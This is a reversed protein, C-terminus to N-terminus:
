VISQNAQSYYNVHLFLDIFLVVLCVVFQSLQPLHNLDTVNRNKMRALQITQNQFENRRDFPLRFDVDIM